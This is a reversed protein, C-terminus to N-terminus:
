RCCAGSPLPDNRCRRRPRATRDCRQFVRQRHSAWGSSLGPSSNGCRSVRASTSAATTASETSSSGVVCSRIVLCPRCNGTPWLPHVGAGDRCHGASERRGPARDQTQRTPARMGRRASERGYELCSGHPSVHGIWPRLSFVNVRGLQHGLIDVRGQTPHACTALIRLLTSKGAGNPGLM